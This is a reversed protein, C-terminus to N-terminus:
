HTTRADVAVMLSAAHSVQVLIVHIQSFKYGIDRWVTPTTACSLKAQCDASLSVKYHFSNVCSSSQAHRSKTFNCSNILNTTIRLIALPLVLNELAINYTTTSEFVRETSSYKLLCFLANKSVPDIVNVICM